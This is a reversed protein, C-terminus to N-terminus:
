DGQILYYLAALAAAIAGAWALTVAGSRPKTTPTPTPTPSPLGPLPSPPAAPQEPCDGGHELPTCPELWPYRMALPGTASVLHAFWAHEAIADILERKGDVECWKSILQPAVQSYDTHGINHALGVPQWVRLQQTTQAYWPRKNEDGAPAMTFAGYNAATNKGWKLTSPHAYLKPSVVWQKGPCSVLEAASCGSRDADIRHSQDVMRATSMDDPDGMLDAFEMFCKARAAVDDMLKATPLRADLLDAIAQATQATVMPVISDGAEGLRL